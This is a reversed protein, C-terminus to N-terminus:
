QPNQGPLKFLRGTPQHRNEIDGDIICYFEQFGDGQEMLHFVKDSVAKLMTSDGAPVFTINYQNSPFLKSYFEIDTSASEGEIFVIKRNLSVFGSAGMVETLAQHFEEGDSVQAFQNEDIYKPFKIVTFLAESGAGAMVEPSHTTIILQNGVGINKLVELYRKQLEPHLHADPEDMLIISNQIDLQHFHIYTNLIEKEGSSLDDIDIPGAPTEVEFRFPTRDIYVDNFRMPSFIRDFFVRIDKLSDFDKIEGALQSRQLNQLDGM